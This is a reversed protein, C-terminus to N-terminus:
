RASFSIAILTAALAVLVGVVVFAVATRETQHRFRDTAWLFLGVALTAGSLVGGTYTFATGMLAPLDVTVILRNFSRLSLRSGLFAYGVGVLLGVVMLTIGQLRGRGRELWITIAGLVILALAFTLVIVSILEIM